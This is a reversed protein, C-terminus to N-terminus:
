WHKVIRGAVRGNIGLKVERASPSGGVALEFFCFVCFMFVIMVVNPARASAAESIMDRRNLVLLRPKGRMWRELRPHGTALPIRADRVELVLDVKELNASLSREAQAIHGPYWQIAPAAPSLSPM